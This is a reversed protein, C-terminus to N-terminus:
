RVAAPHTREARGREGPESSLLSISERRLGIGSLSKRRVQWKLLHSLLVRLRSEVERRDRNAMDTLYEQLHSYDLEEYRRERILEAMRDLWATEDAEYLSVLAAATKVVM